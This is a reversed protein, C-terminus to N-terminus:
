DIRICRRSVINGSVPDQAIGVSNRLGWGMVDGDTYQVTKDSNILDSVKFVRLQSRGSEINATDEDINGDSGRTVLLLHPHQPPIYLTRTSHGAQDMGTIISRPPGAVGTAADYDYAYVDTSSSAFLTKGDATLAIGHNLQRADAVHKVKGM